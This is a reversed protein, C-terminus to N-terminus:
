PSTIPIDFMVKIRIPQKYTAEM